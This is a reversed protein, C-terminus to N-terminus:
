SNRSQEVNRLVLEALRRTNGAGPQVYKEIFSQSADPRKETGELMKRKVDEYVRELLEAPKRYKELPIDKMFDIIFGRRELYRDLDFTYLYIPIEATAAEYIISSYDTILADTVSFLEMATFEPCEFIDERHIGTRDVPHLKVILNYAKYNFAEFLSDLHETINEGNRFTPAYLINPRKGLEPYKRVIEERKRHHYERDTLLDTRPLPCVKVRSEPMRFAKAYYSRCFESSCIACDYNEHMHMANALAESHGEETGVAYYGFQKLVGLAHWLQIISLEKRHHLISANICYGELLVVRSTAFVHMERIVMYWLYKIKGVLGPPIMRNLTVIEVEPNQRELEEKLLRMDLTLTSSQRSVMAIRNRVPFLKHIRYIGNCLAVAIKLMIQM